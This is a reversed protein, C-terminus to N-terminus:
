FRFTQNTLKHITEKRMSSRFHSRMYASNNTTLEKLKSAPFREKFQHLAVTFSFIAATCKVVIGQSSVVAALLLRMLISYEAFNTRTSFVNHMRSKFNKLVKKHVGIACTLTVVM